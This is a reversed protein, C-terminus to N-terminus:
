KYIQKITIRNQREKEKEDIRKKSSYQDVAFLTSYIQKDNLHYGQLASQQESMVTRDHQM